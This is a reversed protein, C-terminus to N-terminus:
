SLDSHRSPAPAPRPSSHCVLASFCLLSSDSPGFLCNCTLRIIIVSLRRVHRCTSITQLPLTLCLDLHTSLAICPPLCSLSASKPPFFNCTAAFWFGASSTITLSPLHAGSALLTLLYDPSSWNHASTMFVEPTITMLLPVVPVGGLPPSGICHFTVWIRGSLSLSVWLGAVAVSSSLVGLTNEAQELELCNYYMFINM